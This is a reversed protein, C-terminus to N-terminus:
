RYALLKADDNYFYVTENAIVPPVFVADGVKFERTISGDYPNLEVAEGRSSVTILREGAMIPGAWAIREKRKKENKFGRLPQLWVVAGSIKSLCAVEANTTVTYIFDGAVWPVGLSGAPQSWIRQGTRLDFASMVGSQSTAIVYGDAVAPGGAIDNLSALPTLRGSSSLSDQWLVNGNQAQLAVLEGSAFPSIVVDDVIAPSPVTLMRASEIIGQYTWLTDGTSANMAFLENDDSIAFLRGGSIKPASHMPTALRKNWIVAGTNADIATVVGLGSTAYVVGDAVAVGGGVSEKDAGGGDSFQLPNTVREFIGARGERTKGKSQVTIKHEWIESGSNADLASVTNDADMIYIRGGAIVPQALVRGKRSTGSGVDKSWVRNLAGSAGTHQMANYVNGGAQPWDANVYVSPLVVDAPSIDGTVTLTDEISLLSIRESEGGVEGQAENKDDGGGFPNLSGVADGVGGLTSCGGLLLASGLALNLLFKNSM